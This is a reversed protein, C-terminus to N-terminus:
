VADHNNPVDAINQSDKDFHPTVIEAFLIM